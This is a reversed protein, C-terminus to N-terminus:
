VQKPQKPACVLDSDIGGKAPGHREGPGDIVVRGRHDPRRNFDGLKPKPSRVLRHLLSQTSPRQTDRRIPDRHGRHSSGTQECCCSCGAFGNIPAAAAAEDFRVRSCRQRYPPEGRTVVFAGLSFFNPGLKNPVKGLLGTGPEGEGFLIPRLTPGRVIHEIREHCSQDSSRRCNVAAFRNGGLITTDGITEVEVRPGAPGTDSGCAAPGLMSTATALITLRTQM